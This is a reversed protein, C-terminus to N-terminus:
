VELNDIQIIEHYHHFFLTFIYDNQKQSIPTVQSNLFICDEWLFNWNIGQLM